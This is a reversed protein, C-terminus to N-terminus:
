FVRENSIADFIRLKDLNFCLEVTDGTKIPRVLASKMIIKGDFMETYINFDSGLLEVFAAEAKFTESKKGKFDAAFHIDEPRIGIYAVEAASEESYAALYKDILENNKQTLDTKEHKEKKSKKEEAPPADKSRQNFVGASDFKKLIGAIVLDTNKLESALANLDNKLGRFDGNKLDERLVEAREDDFKIFGKEESIAKASQIVAELAATAQEKSDQEEHAATESAQNDSIKKCGFSLIAKKNTRLFATIKDILGSEAALDAKRKFDEFYAKRNAIFQKYKEEAGKPLSIIADGSAIKGGVISAKFVNMPPNGIFTAVFVNHPDNYIDMPAGIQQVVGKNMIVIRDAMTMAETQDHTVYITTAHINKHLKVIESRMQVRLKADLNSLPEDMLFLKADRVIARGLAVRQMQGGSLERPRRDLYPGLDLIEAAEFVKQKIIDKAVGRAKLGFGINDYVTMNPYLAYSQFVMAIDRDKSELYNSLIKDIYLYGNTIEELGAIMRLTTSKGCGSPGVLVIFENQAISLNFDFVAQVRNDYVKNVDKLVVYGDIDEEVVRKNNRRYIAAAEKRTVKKEM